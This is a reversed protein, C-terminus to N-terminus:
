NLVRAALEELSRVTNPSPTASAGRDILYGQMGLDIASEVNVLVDDVFVVEEAHLGALELAHRYIGPKPKEVGVLASLTFPDFKDRLGMDQYRLDLSPGANSVLGTRLGHERLSSWVGVSSVMVELAPGPTSSLRNREGSSANSSSSSAKWAMTVM